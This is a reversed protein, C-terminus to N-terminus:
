NNIIRTSGEDVSHILNMASSKRHILYCNEITETNNKLIVSSDNVNIATKKPLKDVSDFFISRKKLITVDFYIQFDLTLKFRM